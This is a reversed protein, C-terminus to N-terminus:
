KKKWHGKIWVKGHKSNKWHGKVWVHRPKDKAPKILKKSNRKNKVPAPKVSKKKWHGPVRIYGHKTKKWHGKIWSGQPKKVWHGPMWVFEEGAWKWHGGIWVAEKGPSKTIVEAKTPPPEKAIYVTDAYGFVFFMLFILVCLAIINKRM